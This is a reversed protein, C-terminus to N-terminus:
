DWVVTIDTDAGITVITLGNYFNCLYDVNGQLKNVNLVSIVTGSAATNDYATVTNAGSGNGVIIRHLNGSDGKVVTTAAGLIRLYRPETRDPGYRQQSTGTVILDVNTTSGGSNINEFRNPFNTENTRPLGGVEGSMVHHTEGNVLFYATNGFYSIEYRNSGGAVQVTFTSITNWNAAAVRTDTGARRSVAYLTTGDLEYFYGSTDTYVGWRVKNNAVGGNALKIGVRFVQLSGSMFRGLPTSTVKATSNATTGTSLQLRGNTIAATGSGTVAPTWTQTDLGGAQRFNDAILSTRQAVALDRIQPLVTVTEDFEYDYVIGRSQVALSSRALKAAVLSQTLAAADSMFHTDMNFVSQATSGNVYRLRFYTSRPHFSLFEARNGVTPQSSSRVITVGNDPSHETYITGDVDSFSGVRVTAYDEVLMWPSTFSGGGALPTATTLQPILHGGPM